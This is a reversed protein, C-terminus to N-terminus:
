HPLIGNVLAAWALKVDERPPANWSELRWLGKRSGRKLTKLLTPGDQVQVVCLEGVCRESVGQHEPGYAVRWGDQLPYQSDGSIEAVNPGLGATLDMGALVVGEDFRTIEAGAGVKGVLLAETERAGPLRLLDAPQIGMVEAFERLVDTNFRRGGNVWLSIESKDHGTRAAVEAQRIGKAALWERAFWGPASKKPKRM